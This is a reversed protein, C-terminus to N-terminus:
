KDLYHSKKVLRTLDTKHKKEPWQLRQENAEHDVLKIINNSRFKQFPGLVSFRHSSPSPEKYTSGGGHGSCTTLFSM